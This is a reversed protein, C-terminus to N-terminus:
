GRAPIRHHNLHFGEGASSHDRDPLDPQGPVDNGGERHALLHYGSVTRSSLPHHCLFDLFHCGGDQGEAAPDQVPDLTGICIVTSFATNKIYIVYRMEEEEILRQVTHFLMVTKGVRRPGMLILARHIDNNKVLPYFIDLYLRPTMQKYYDQISNTIWWPNDVRLRGIIQKELLETYEM